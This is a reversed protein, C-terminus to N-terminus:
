KARKLKSWRQWVLTEQDRAESFSFGLGLGLNLIMNLAHWRQAISAARNEEKEIMEVAQWGERYAELLRRDM